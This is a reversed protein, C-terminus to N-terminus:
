LKRLSLNACRMRNMMLNRRNGFSILIMALFYIDERLFEYHHRRDLLKVIVEATEFEVDYAELMRKEDETFKVVKKFQNRRYAIWLSKSLYQFLLSPVSLTSTKKFITQLVSYVNGEFEPNAIERYIHDPIGKYEPNVYITKLAAIRISIENGNVRLKGNAVKM